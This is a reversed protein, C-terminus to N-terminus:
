STRACCRCAAHEAGGRAPRGPQGPLLGGRHAGLDGARRGGRLGRVLEAVDLDPRIPGKSPSARKVEAILSVGPRRCAGRRVVAPCGSPRGAGAVRGAAAGAGASTWAGCSRRARHPGSLHPPVTVSARERRAAALSTTLAVMDELVQAARGSDISEAARTWGKEISPVAGAVYLAAGANLLVADARRARPARALVSRTIAANEGPRGWGSGRRPWRQM